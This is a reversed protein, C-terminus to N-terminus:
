RRACARRPAAARRPVVAGAGAAGRDRPSRDAARVPRRGLMRRGPATVCRDITPSCAARAVSGTQTRCIELSDRTAPDIAMHRRRARDPAARRPLRRRGEADRRSLGAARGGRGTRRPGAVGFGDLTAVGFRQKLAREGALSDFGGKGATTPLERCRARRRDDRGPRAAGTRVETRGARVRGTRVARDFHRGRRDGMDDGVSRWRPSGTPRARKSCADGRDAHGPTVLRVIARDVLAKAGRAKRAEAPSEIQEAIAVRHGARILRALYAEASHVPVGCMPIPEGGDAGRATLAIDLTAAAAKADDFFLEFFDGMRYFLLADGAEAKLRHYQAMMPTPRPLTRRPGDRSTRLRLAQARLRPHRQPLFAALAQRSLLAAHALAVDFERSASASSKWERPRGPLISIM